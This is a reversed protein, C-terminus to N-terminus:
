RRFSPSTTLPEPSATRVPSCSRYRRSSASVRSGRWGCHITALSISHGAVRDSGTPLAITGTVDRLELLSGDPAVNTVMLLVSFFQNLFAVNGPIVVLGTVPPVDFPPIGGDQEPVPFFPLAAISFNLGPRDFEPPLTTQTAALTQNILSLTKILTTRDATSQLLEPTPLAAPLNITFTSGDINFAVQFSV